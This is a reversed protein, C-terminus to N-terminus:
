VDFSRTIMSKCIFYQAVVYTIMVLIGYIEKAEYFRNIALLSDSTIFIIAGLFLWLNASNKQTIYNLFTIAGFSSIVMGYVIVPIKMDGLGDFIVNLLIIFFVTFPLSAWLIKKFSVQKLFGATIKIFFIHALLFSALGLVFYQENFLLLVDGWFSFFLASIYWFNPKKAAVIYLIALTTMLLPKFVFVATKNQNVIGWIDALFVILFLFSVITIKTQKTM